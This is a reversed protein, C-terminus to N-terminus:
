GKGPLKLKPLDPRPEGPIAKRANEANRLDKAADEYRGLEREHSDSLEEVQQQQRQEEFESRTSPHNILTSAGLGLGVVTLVIATNSKWSM